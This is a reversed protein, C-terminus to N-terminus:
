SITTETIGLNLIEKGVFIERLANLKRGIPIRSRWTLIARSENPEVLVTDLNPMRTITKDFFVYRIPVSLTPVIFQVRHNLTMGTCVIKENGTFHDFQQDPPASQYYLDNFDDPLFPFKEDRWVRDFTGAFAIRPQWSRGIAGLGIPEPKQSWSKIRQQIREINPLPKHNVAKGQRNLLYGTGVPNRMETGWKKENQHSHDTGGFAREYTIPMVKFPLPATAYWGLWGSRWFRDGYVRLRKIKNLVQLSVDLESVTKGNPSIADGNVIVDTKPKFPSFDCEYKISTTSPDGIHEDAYVFDIQKDALESEGNEGINFTGKVIVTCFEFGDKDTSICLDTKMGTTNKSIQM